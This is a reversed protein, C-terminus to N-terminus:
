NNIGYYSYWNGDKDILVTSYGGFTKNQVVSIINSIGQINKTLTVNIKGSSHSDEFNMESITGDKHVFIISYNTGGNGNYVGYFSEVNTLDLKYGNFSEAQGPFAASVNSTTSHIADTSVINLDSFITNRETPDYYINNGTKDIYIDGITKGMASVTKYYDSDSTTSADNSLYVHQEHNSDILITARRFTSMVSVINSINPINKTLTVNCYEGNVIEFYMVSITGNKHVFFFSQPYTGGDISYAAQVNTLDLKYGTFTLGTMTNDPEPNYTARLMTGTSVINLPTVNQPKYYVNNGNREIYIEGWSNTAVCIKDDITKLKTNTNSSTGSNNVKNSNIDNNNGSNNNENNTSNQIINTKDLVMWVAMAIVLIFLLCILLTVGASGRKKIKM